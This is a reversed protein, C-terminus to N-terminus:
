PDTAAIAVGDGFLRTAGTVDLFAEDLALPEVIPTFRGFIEHVDRSVTSYLQHDGPLFVAHPCRRRAVTSPM